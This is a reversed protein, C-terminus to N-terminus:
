YKSKCYKYAEDFNISPTKKWPISKDKIQFNIKDFSAHNGCYQGSRESKSNVAEVIIFDNSPYIYIGEGPKNAFWDLWFLKNNDISLDGEITCNGDENQNSTLYIEVRSNQHRIVMCEEHLSGNIQTTHKYVGEIDNLGLKADSACSVILLILLIPYKSM